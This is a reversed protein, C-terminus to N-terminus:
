APVFRRRFWLGVLLVMPFTHFTTLVSLVPHWIKDNAGSDHAAVVPLLAACALVAIAILAYDFARWGIGDRRKVYMYYFWAELILVPAIILQSIFM